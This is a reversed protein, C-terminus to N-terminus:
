PSCPNRDKLRALMRRIFSADPKANGSATTSAELKNVALELGKIEGDLECKEDRLASIREQCTSRDYFVPLKSAASDLEDLKELAHHVDLSQWFATDLAEPPSNSMFEPHLHLQWNPRGCLRCSLLADFEAVLEKASSGMLTLECGVPERPMEEVSSESDRNGLIMIHHVLRDAVLDALAPSDLGERDTILVKYGSYPQLVSRLPSQTGSPMFVVLADYFRAAATAEPSTWPLSCSIHHRSGDAIQRWAHAHEDTEHESPVVLLMELKHPFPRTRASVRETLDGMIHGFAESAHAIPTIQGLFALDARLFEHDVECLSLVVDAQREAFLALRDLRGTQTSRGANEKLSSLVTPLLGLVRFPSYILHVLDLADPNLVFVAPRLMKQTCSVETIQALAEDPSLSLRCISAPKVM